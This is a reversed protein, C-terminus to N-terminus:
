DKRAQLLGQGRGRGRVLTADLVLANYIAEKAGDDIPAQLRAALMARAAPVFRFSFRRLFALELHRASFGPHVAKWAAYVEDVGMLAAYASGALEQAQVFVVEHAHLAKRREGKSILGVM